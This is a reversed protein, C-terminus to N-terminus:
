RTKGGGGAPLQVERWPPIDQYLRIAPERTVPDVHIIVWAFGGSHPCKPHSKM